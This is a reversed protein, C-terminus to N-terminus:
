KLIAVGVACQLCLKKACYNNKLQILAQSDYATKCKVALAKYGKTINNVEAPISELFLIAKQKYSEENKFIGYAFLTPVITNIIINHIMDEGLHKEKYATQDDDLKYHYNWYDNAQVSFFEMVEKYTTCELIKSFLKNSKFVLVALQSLRITPFTFPRMRLFHPKIVAEQLNYKTKLFHYEKQLMVVYEDIFRGKLMGAQGLLMSELKVQSLKNKALTLHPTHLAMDEFADANVKIGFNRAIKQWFTEEWNNKNQALSDFILQTKQELREILLRDKWNNFQLTSIKNMQKECPIFSYQGMLTEYQELMIKSVYKRLELVPSNFIKTEPVDHQWVVHLIINKYNTDTQHKHKYWDSSNVHLEIQGAWTTSGIKLKANLFDPGQNTNLNGRQQIAIAEGELTVLEKTNFYQLNWIFQLLKETIM